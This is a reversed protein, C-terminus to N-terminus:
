DESDADYEPYEYEVNIEDESKRSQHYALLRERSAQIQTESVKRTPSVKVWRIPVHAFISGDENRNIIKVDDPFKEALREIRGKLRSNNYATVGAYTDGRVWDIACENVGSNM